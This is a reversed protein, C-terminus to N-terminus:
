EDHYEQLHEIQHSNWTVRNDVSLLTTGAWALLSIIIARACWAFEWEKRRLYEVPKNM